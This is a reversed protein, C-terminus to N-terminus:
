NEHIKRESITKGDQKKTITEEINKKGEKDIKTIKDTIKETGDEEISMEKEEITTQINDTFKNKSSNIM